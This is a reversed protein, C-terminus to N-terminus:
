RRSGAVVVLRPRNAEKIKKWRYRFQDRTLGLLKAARTQNGHCQALAQKMLSTELEELSIGDSPLSFLIQQPDFSVHDV